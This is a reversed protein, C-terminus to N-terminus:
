EVSSEASSWHIHVIKWSGGIDRLVMTEASVRNVAKGRFTGKTRGESAIWALGHASDGTRRTKVGPVATSFAADAALHQAAYEAKSREARGEEFILADDTLLALAAQTDGRRLAAHFADVAAAAARAAPAVAQVPAAPAAPDTAAAPPALALLALSAASAVSARVMQIGMMMGTSLPGYMM